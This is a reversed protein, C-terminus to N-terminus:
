GIGAAQDLSVLGRFWGFLIILLGAPFMWPKHLWGGLMMVGAGALRVIQMQRTMYKKVYRGAASRKYPELDAYTMIAYSALAPPIFAVLFATLPRRNWLLYLAPLTVGGDTLLKLPHIQHYLSKEAWDM